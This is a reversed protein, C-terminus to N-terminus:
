EDGLGTAWLEESTTPEDYGHILARLPAILPCHENLLARRQALGAQLRVWEQAVHVHMRQLSERTSHIRHLRPHMTRLIIGLPSYDRIVLVRLIANLAVDGIPPDYICIELLHWVSDSLDEDGSRPPLLHFNRAATESSWGREFILWQVLADAITPLDDSRAAGLLESSM